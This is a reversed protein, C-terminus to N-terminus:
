YNRFNKLNKVAARLLDKAESSTIKKWDFYQGGRTSAVRDIPGCVSRIAHYEISSIYSRPAHGRGKLNWPCERIQKAIKRAAIRYCFEKLNMSKM